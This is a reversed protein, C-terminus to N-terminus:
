YMLTILGITPRTALAVQVLFVPSAPNHSAWRLLSDLRSIGLEAPIDRDKEFDTLFQIFRNFGLKFENLTNPSFVRTYSFVANKAPNDWNDAHNPLASFVFPLFRLPNTQTYRGFVSNQDNIEHDVRISYQNEDLIKCPPRSWTAASEPGTRSLFCCISRIWLKKFGHRNTPIINNPFPDRIYTCETSNCPLSPDVRTTAPDYIPNLGSFDGARMAITPVSVARTVSKDIRTGEYSFFFFTKDKIIPGGVAFGFQNQTFEPIEPLGAAVRDERADDFFNRADLADNRLFWYATGHIQNTGSKTVVSVQAGSGFGSEASFQSAAQKFEQINDITVKLTPHTAVTEQAM